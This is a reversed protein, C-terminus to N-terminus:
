QCLTVCVELKQRDLQEIHRRQWEKVDMVFSDLHGPIQFTATKQQEQASYLDCHRSTLCSDCQEPRNVQAFKTCGPPCTSATIDSLTVSHHCRTM